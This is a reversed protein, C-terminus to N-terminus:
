NGLLVDLGKQVVLIQLALIFGEQVPESLQVDGIFSLLDNIDDVDAILLDKLAAICGNRVIKIIIARNATQLIFGVM